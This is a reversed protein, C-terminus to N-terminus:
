LGNKSLTVIGLSGDVTIIQGSTIRKTAVGTGMVAPIAYERAVISGHSLPGGIDTVVASAMAFLPTWAPTTTGAVLVDGSQMQCFDEPGHLVCAPATIKGPSAAVGKLMDGVQDEDSAPLWQEVNIGMFKKIPPLTPPPSLRKQAHWEAKRQQIVGMLPAMPEGRDLAAVAQEVEGQILWFIDDPREVAGREVLRRGLEKLMKRLQPYGYGIYAIGDERLPAVGQAWGLVTRFIKLKLGKLRALTSQVAAERREASKLQRQYPNTGRGSVFLKLTEILPAPDDGPLSRAFDLNYITYGYKELYTQFRRQLDSWAETDLNAPKRDGTLDAVMRETPTSLLYGALASQDRCWQALDYLAKEALIPVSDYGLVFVTADPDAERRVLKNYVTSFIGEASGAIGIIGSQLTALHDVAVDMIEGVGALLGSAALDPLHKAQWRAVVENYRPVAEDRWRPVATRILRPLVFLGALIVLWQRPKINGSTYAYGNITVFWEDPWVGKRGAVWEMLRRMGANYRARGLTSFLPSLPDPMFDVVGGRMYPGQPEPLKWEICTSATPEPLATIPRAQVIAFAGEEGTVRAAPSALTLTWEIDMPMKYLQEIQVGLRVLEAAQQNDLVPERRKREPVPQEETGGAGGETAVRVTMVQKDATERTLVRGTAKDVTLTDPTVLGGVIAEGLGWTATLMAQDRQGTIPNTTFLIGAADAFVLQQVVVALSVANHDINHQSRYGIARATWLSAWCRKVADQVAEVGHINLFTDQQGAFSLDPLDEATASSRVAVVPQVGPLGAYAEAIAEAIDEPMKGLCFLEGIVRSANELTATHTADVSELAALISPQLNNAAVFHQYALTTVHFGGPVPLGANSLRALSAGKGGAVALTARTDALPLVYEPKM